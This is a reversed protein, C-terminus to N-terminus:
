FNIDLGLQVTRQLPYDELGTSSSSEPDFYKIKDISFLNSAQLYIRTSKLHIKNMLNKPLTYSLSVNKLRIFDAPKLWFTSTRNSPGSGSNLDRFVRPYKNDGEKRWRGNFYDQDYNLYPTINLYADAQGQFFVALDFNKYTLGLNVGYIIEPTIGYDKRVQDKEVIKGDGNTDLLKVDGPGTFPLHANKDVQDQTQFLGDSNYVVYSDIPFGGRKQYNPTNAAEDLFEVKNRAISFNGNLTYSFDESIKDKYGLDLEIGKNLVRGLNEDPLSLGTYDPVSQNRAILIRAIHLRIRLVNCLYLLWLFCVYVFHVRLFRMNFPLLCGFVTSSEKFM